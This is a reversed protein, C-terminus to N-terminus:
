KTITTPRIEHPHSKWLHVAPSSAGIVVVGMAGCPSVFPGKHYTPKKLPKLYAFKMIRTHACACALLSRSKAQAKHARVPPCLLAEFGFENLARRVKLAAYKNNICCVFRSQM